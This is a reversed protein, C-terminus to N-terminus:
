YHSSWKCSFFLYIYIGVNRIQKALEIIGDIVTINKNLLYKLGYNQKDLKSKAQIKEFQNYESELM